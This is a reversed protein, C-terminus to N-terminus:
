KKCDGTIVAQTPESKQAPEGPDPACSADRRGDGPHLQVSINGDARASGRQEM